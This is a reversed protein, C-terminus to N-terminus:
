ELGHWLLLWGRRRGSSSRNPQGAGRASGGSSERFTWRRAPNSYESSSPKAFAISGGRLRQGCSVGGGGFTGAVAGAGGANTAGIFPTLVLRVVFGIFLGSPDALNVPDNHSYRFVNSGDLQGIPDANIYRGTAPDFYRFRNYHLRGYSRRRLPLRNRSHRRPKLALNGQHVRLMESYIGLRPKESRVRPTTADARVEAAYCALGEPGA